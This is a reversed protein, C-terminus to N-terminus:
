TQHEMSLNVNEHVDIEPKTLWDPKLLMKPNELNLTNNHSEFLVELADKGLENPKIIIQPKTISNNKQRKLSREMLNFILCGLIVGVIGAGLAFILVTTIAM